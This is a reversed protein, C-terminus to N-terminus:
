RARWMTLDTQLDKVGTPVAILMTSLMFFLQGALPMGTTVHSAGLRHVVPVRDLRNAYVM